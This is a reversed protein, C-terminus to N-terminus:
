REAGRPERAAVVCPEPSGHLTASARAPSASKLMTPQSVDSCDMAEVLPLASARHDIYSCADDEPRATVLLIRIPTAVVPM